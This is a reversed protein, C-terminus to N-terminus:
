AACPSYATVREPPPMGEGKTVSNKTGLAVAAPVTVTTLLPFRVLVAITVPPPECVMCVGDAVAVSLELPFIDSGPVSETVPWVVKSPTVLVPAVPVPPM